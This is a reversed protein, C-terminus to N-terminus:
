EIDTRLGFARNQINDAFDTPPAKRGGREYVIDEPVMDGHEPVVDVPQVLGPILFSEDLGFRM